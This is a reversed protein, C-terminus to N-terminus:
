ACVITGLAISLLYQMVHEVAHPIALVFLGGHPAMLTCGFYM